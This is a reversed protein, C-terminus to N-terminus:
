LSTRFMYALWFIHLRKDIKAFIYSERIIPKIPLKQYNKPMNLCIQKLKWWTPKQLKNRKPYVKTFKNAFLNAFTNPSILFKPLHNSINATTNGCNIDKSIVISFIIDILTRLHTALWTPRIIYLLYSNSARPDLIENTPKHKNYHILEINFDGLLFM